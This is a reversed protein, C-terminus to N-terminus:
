HGRQVAEDFREMQEPTLDNLLGSMGELVMLNTMIRTLKEESFDLIQEPQWHELLGDTQKRIQDTRDLDQFVPHAQRLRDVIETIRAEVTQRLDTAQTM